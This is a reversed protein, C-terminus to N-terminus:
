TVKSVTWFDWALDPDLFCHYPIYCYGQDGWLPGWSNRAIFHRSDELYGVALMAHGGLSTDHRTPAPVVGTRKVLASKFTRHVNFGFTFPHRSALCARLDTLNARIRTYRIAKHETAIERLRAPPTRRFRRVDYPWMREPCVGDRAVTKYGTRLSVPGNHALNGEIARENFYIFLRSPSPHRPNGHRVREEYWLAAAIAHASCSNLYRQNYIPPMYPRLDVKRPLREMLRAPPEYYHDRRDRSDKATGYGFGTLRKAM